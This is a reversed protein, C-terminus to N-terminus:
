HIMNFTPNAQLGAFLDSITLMNKFRFIKNYSQEEEDEVNITEDTPTITEGFTTAVYEMADNFSKFKTLEEYPAKTVQAVYKDVSGGRWKDQHMKDEDLVTTFIVNGSTLWESLWRGYDPMLFSEDGNTMKLYVTGDVEETGIESPDLKKALLMWRKNGFNILTLTEAVSNGKFVIFEPHKLYEPCNCTECEKQEPCTPCNCTECEKQEPCTPRDKIFKRAIAISIIVAVFIFVCILQVTISM